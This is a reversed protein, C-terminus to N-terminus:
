PKKKITAEPQEVDETDRAGTAPKCSILLDPTKM